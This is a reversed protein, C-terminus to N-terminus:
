DDSQSPPLTFVRRYLALIVVDNSKLQQEFLCKVLGKEGLSCLINGSIGHKTYLEIPKFWKADSPITFLGKITAKRKGIKIPIGTLLVREIIVRGPQVNETVGTAVLEDNGDVNMFVLVMSPKYTVYGYFSGIVTSAADVWRLVKYKNGMRDPSTFIINRKYRRDGIQITFMNNSRLPITDKELTLVVHIISQNDEYQRLSCFVKGLLSGMFNKPYSIYMQVYTGEPVGDEVKSYSDSMRNYDDFEILDNYEKPLEEDCDWESYKLSRLGRYGKFTEKACEGRKVRYRDPHDSYEKFLREAREVDTENLEEEDEEDMDMIDNDDFDDDEEEVEEVEEVVELEEGEDGVIWAATYSGTGKPVKKTVNVITSKPNEMQKNILDYDNVNEDEEEMGDENNQNNNEDDEEEEEEQEIEYKEGGDIGNGYPDVATMIGKVEVDGLGVIYGAHLRSLEDRRVYGKIIVGDQVVQESDIVVYGPGEIKTKVGMTGIKMVIMPAELDVDYVRSQSWRGSKMKGKKGLLIIDGLGQAELFDLKEEEEATVNEGLVFMMIDAVKGVDMRQWIDQTTKWFCLRRDKSRAYILEGVIKEITFHESLKQLAYEVNGNGLPMIGIMRPASTGEKEQRRNQLLQERQLRKKQQQQNRRVDKPDQKIPRVRIQQGEAQKGKKKQQRKSGSRRKFPKNQQKLKGPNHREM